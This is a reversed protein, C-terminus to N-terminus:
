GSGSGPVIAFISVILLETTSFVNSSIAADLDLKFPPSLPNTPEFLLKPDFPLKNDDLPFKADDFPLKDGDFLLKDGELLLRDVEFLLRTPVLAAETDKFLKAGLATDELLNDSDFSLSEEM